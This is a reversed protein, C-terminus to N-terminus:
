IFPEQIRSNIYDWESNTIGMLEILIKDSYEISYSELDPVFSFNKRNVHQYIVTQLVLFRFIKTFVYTKFFKAENVSRTKRFNGVNEM